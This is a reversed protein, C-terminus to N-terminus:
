DEAVWQSYDLESDVPREVLHAVRKREAVLGSRRQKVPRLWESDFRRM